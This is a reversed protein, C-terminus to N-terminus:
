DAVVYYRGKTRGGEARLKGQQVLAKLLRSASAESVNCLLVVDRRRVERKERALDVIMQEQQVRSFGAQRVFADEKGFYRYVSSSLMYERGRGVGLPHVLGLEVLDELESRAARTQKQILKAIEATGMRKSERLHTLILLSHVPFQGGLKQEQELVLRLFGLDAPAANLEVVVRVDSSRDYDPAPRGFRLLEDYIRDVGRGTREALGIRKFADALVPNRSIPDASLLNSPRVGEVFGGPSSVSLSDVKWQIHIAGLRHYDRHVLANVVSERFAVQSVNPVRVRFLGDQFEEETVRGAYFHEISEYLRVLPRRSFENHLVRTNDLHQLAVEHAPLHRVIAEEDGVLLLGAVTPVRRSEYPVTLRLAQDLEEYSLHRLAPDGRYRKVADLLRDRESNRLDSLRAKEVPMASADAQGMQSLRLQIEHAPLPVCEPQGSVGIRRRQITGRSTSVIRRSKPVEVVLVRYEGVTRLIARVIIPPHTLNAIRVAITDLEKRQRNLGTVCGDDDVGLYLRGGEANAMCVVALALDADSVRNRADSKFEVTLSEAGPIGNDM